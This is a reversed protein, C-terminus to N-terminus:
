MYKIAVICQVHVRFHRGRWQDYVIPYLRITWPKSFCKGPFNIKVHIQKKTKPVTTSMVARYLPKVQPIYPCLGFRLHGCDVWCFNKETLFLHFLYILKIWLFAPKAQSRTRVTWYNYLKVLFESYQGQLWFPTSCYVSIDSSWRIRKNATSCSSCSSRVEVPRM